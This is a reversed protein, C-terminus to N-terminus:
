LSSSHDFHNSCGMDEVMGVLAMSDLVMGVVMDLVMGLEM